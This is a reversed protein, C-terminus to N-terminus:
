VFNFDITGIKPYSFLIQKLIEEKCIQLHDNADKNYGMVTFEFLANRM